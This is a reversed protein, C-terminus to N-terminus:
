WQGNNINTTNATNATNATNTTSDPIPLADEAGVDNGQEEGQNGGDDDGVDDAAVALSPDITAPTEGVGGELHNHDGADVSNILGGADQGFAMAAFGMITLFVVLLAAGGLGSNAAGGAVHVKRKRKRKKKKKEKRKKEEEHTILSAGVACAAIAQYGHPFPFSKAMLEAQVVDIHGAAAEKLEHYRQGYIVPEKLIEREDRTM